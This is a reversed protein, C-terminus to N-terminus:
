GRDRGEGRRDVEGATGANVGDGAEAALGGEGPLGIRDLQAAVGALRAGHGGRAVHVHAAPLAHDAEVGAAAAQTAGGNVASPLTMVVGTTPFPTSAM